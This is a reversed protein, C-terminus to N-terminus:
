ASAGRLWEAVGDALNKWASEGSLRSVILSDNQDINQALHDRINAASTGQISVIWHSLLVRCYGPYSMIAKELRPYDRDPQHLDYDVSYLAM